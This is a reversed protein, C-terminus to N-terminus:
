TAVDAGFDDHDPFFDDVVFSTFFLPYLLMQQAERATNYGPDVSCRTYRNYASAMPARHAAVDAFGRADARGPEVFLDSAMPLYGYVREGVTCADSTSEVVEAFGWVPVRGWAEPDATPFFDWYQMAAGFVAYTINNSTLAFADVRLRARDPGLAVAPDPELRTTVLADKAVEFIMAAETDHCTRVSPIM